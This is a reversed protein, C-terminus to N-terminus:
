SNLSSNSGFILVRGGDYQFYRLVGGAERIFELRAMFLLNKARTAYHVVFYLVVRWVFGPM